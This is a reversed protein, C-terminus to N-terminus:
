KKYKLAGICATHAAKKALADEGDFLEGDFENLKVGECSKGTLYEYWTLSLTYRGLVNGMHIADRFIRSVDAGSKVLELAAAGSPIIGAAGITHYAKEYAEEVRRFMSEHDSFGLDALRDGGPKYGWTQHIYIKAKPSYKRVYDAVFELYPTYNDFNISEHSAQQLTVVDFEDSILAEKISTSFGTDQGNYQMGYNRFDEICNVYHKRLPCGGIYCNVTKFKDGASKAVDCLYRLADASYSNGIALVKM